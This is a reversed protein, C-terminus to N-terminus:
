EYRFHDGLILDYHRKRDNTFDTINKLNWGYKASIKQLIYANPIMKINEIDKIGDFESIIINEKELGLKDIHLGLINEYTYKPDITYNNKVIIAVISDYLAKKSKPIPGLESKINDLLNESINKGQIHTLWDPISIDNNM